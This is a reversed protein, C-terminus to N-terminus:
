ALYRRPIDLTKLFDLLHGRQGGAQSASVTVQIKGDRRLVLLPAMPSTGSRFFRPGPRRRIEAEMGEYFDRRVGFITRTEVYDEWFSIQWSWAWLAAILAPAWFLLSCAALPWTGGAIGMLLFVAGVFGFLMLGAMTLGRDAKLVIVPAQEMKM